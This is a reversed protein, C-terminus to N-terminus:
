VAVDGESEGSPQVKPIRGTFFLSVVALLAIVALAADLGSIRAAANVNVVIETGQAGVGASALESTLQTNSLFPAGPALQVSAKTKVAAPVQPNQQIGAILSTTLVAIMVSGALATGLSAGLNTATNQLGGVEGSQETPVASVTVSGLQSALAGIGLGVFIMPISVVAATADLRIGALLVLIGALMMLIGVRVVRRPSVTPWVKPIGIASVLLALSLPM